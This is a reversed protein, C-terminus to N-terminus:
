LLAHDAQIKSTITALVNARFADSGFAALRDQAELVFRRYGDPDAIQAAVIADVGEPDATMVMGKFNEGTAADTIVLKGAAIAEAIVRGFSERCNPNTHYVFFDIGELFAEVPMAGFPLVEWNGPLEQAGIMLSDGGLIRNTNAHAPFSKRLETLAPFKEFGPRSMRGRRDAPAAVPAQTEFDCINFWDFAAVRWDPRPHRALWAVVNRRNSPSIPAMVKHRALVMRDLQDTCHGVDYGEEGDPRLYNEHCVAYFRDCLIRALPAAGPKEFRLCSPNHLVVTEARIAAPNWIIELGAETLADALRANVGQGKFMATELAYVKLDVLRHIALIERAVASSTGGSFRPDIVLALRPRSSQSMPVACNRVGFSGRPDSPTM